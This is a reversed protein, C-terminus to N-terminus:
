GPRRSKNKKSGAAIEARTREVIGDLYQEILHGFKRYGDIAEQVAQAQEQPVYRTVYQGGKRFQHNYYPGNPGQGIISLKGRELHQIQAAQQLLSQFSSKANMTSIYTYVYISCAFFSRSECFSSKQGAGMGGKGMYYTYTNNIQWVVKGPRLEGQGINTRHLTGFLM